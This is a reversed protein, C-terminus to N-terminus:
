EKKKPVEATDAKKSPEPEKTAAESAREKNETRTSDPETKAEASEKVEEKKTEEKKVEEKETTAKEESAQKQSDEKETDMKESDDNDSEEQNAPPQKKDDDSGENEAPPEEAPEDFSVLPTRPLTEGSRAKLYEENVSSDLMVSVRYWSDMQTYEAVEGFLRAVKVRGPVDTINDSVADIASRLQAKLDLLGAVNEEAIKQMRSEGSAEFTKAALKMVSLKRPASTILEKALLKAEDVNGEALLLDLKAEKLQPTPGAQGEMSQLTVMAARYEGIRTLVASKTIPSSVTALHAKAVEELKELDNSEILSQFYQEVFEPASSSFKGPSNLVAEFDELALDHQDLFIRVRARLIHSPEHEQDLELNKNLEETALQIGGAMFYLSALSMRSKLGDGSDKELASRYAEVAKEFNGSRSHADGARQSAEAALPSDESVKSFLRLAMPERNQSMAVRGQLMHVHNAYAPDSELLRLKSDFDKERNPQSLLETAEAYVEALDPPVLSLIIGGVVALTLPVLILWLWIPVKSGVKSQSNSM